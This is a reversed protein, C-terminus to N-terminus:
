PKPDESICVFHTLIRPGNRRGSISGGKLVISNAGFYIGFSRFGDKGEVYLRYGDACQYIRGGVLAFQDDETRLSSVQSIIFHNENDLYIM